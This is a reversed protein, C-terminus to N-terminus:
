ALPIRWFPPTNDRLHHCLRDCPQQKVWRRKASKPRVVTPWEACDLSEHDHLRYQWEDYSEVVSNGCSLGSYQNEYTHTPANEAQTAHGV